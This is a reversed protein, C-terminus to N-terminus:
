YHRAKIKLNRNDPHCMIIRHQETQDEKSTTVVQIQVQDEEQEMQAAVTFMQFVCSILVENRRM